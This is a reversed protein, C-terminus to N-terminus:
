PFARRKGLFILEEVGTRKGKCIIETRQKPDTVHYVHSIDRMTGQLTSQVVLEYRDKATIFPRFEQCSGNLPKLLVAEAMVQLLAIPPHITLITYLKYKNCVECVM